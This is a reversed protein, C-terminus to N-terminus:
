QGGLVANRVIAAASDPDEHEWFRLVIWGAARLQKVTDADRRRNAQIKEAWWAANAKPSTGHQPCGHWFCGDVYVAVKRTPFVLDARRRLGPLPARDVYYRLGWRHLLSRLAM